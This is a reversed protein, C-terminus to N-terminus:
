YTEGTILNKWSGSEGAGTSIVPGTSGTRSASDWATDGVGSRSISTAALDIPAKSSKLTVTGSGGSQRTAIGASLNTFQVADGEITATSDYFIVCDSAVANIDAGAFVLRLAGSSTSLSGNVLYNVTDVLVGGSLTLTCDEDNAHQLLRDVNTISGGIVNIRKLYGGGTADMSFAYGRGAGAVPPAIVNVEDVDTTKNVKVLRANGASAHPFFTPAMLTLKRITANENDLRVFDVAGSGNRGDVYGRLVLSDISNEGPMGDNGLWVVSNITADGDYRFGIDILGAAPPTRLGIPGMIGTGSPDVDVHEIRITGYTGGTTGANSPDDGVWLGHYAPSGTVKGTQVVGTVHNNAGAIIKLLNATATGSIDGITVDEIDGACHAHTLWDSGLLAVLDDGTSGYVRSITVARHPGELILGGKGLDIGPMDFRTNTFDGIRSLPIFDASTFSDWSIELSDVSYIRLRLLDAWDGTDNGEEVIVDGFLLKINTDRSHLTVTADSVTKGANRADSTGLKALTITTATKESV